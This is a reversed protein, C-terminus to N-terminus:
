EARSVTRATEMVPCLKAAEDADTEREMMGPLIRAAILPPSTRGATTERGRTSSAEEEVSSFEDCSGKDEVEFGDKASM